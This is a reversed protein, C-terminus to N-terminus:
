IRQKQKKHIGWQMLNGRPLTLKDKLNTGLFIDMYLLLNGCDIDNDREFYTKKKKEKELWIQNLFCDHNSIPLM